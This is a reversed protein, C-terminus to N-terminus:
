WLKLTLPTIIVNYSSSHLRPLANLHSVSPIRIAQIAIAGEDLEPLFVAGLRGGLIIALVLPVLALLITGIPRGLAWDLMKEYPPKLVRIVFPDHDKEDEKLVFSLLVPVVTFSLIMSGILAYVVTLAMPRFMKGELGTLALLLAADPHQSQLVQASLM